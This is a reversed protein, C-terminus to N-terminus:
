MAAVLREYPPTGVLKRIRRIQLKYETMRSRLGELDRIIADVLNDEETFTSTGGGVPKTSFMTRPQRNGLIFKRKKIVTREENSFEVM